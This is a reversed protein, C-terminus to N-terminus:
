ADISVNNPTVVYRDAAAKLEPFRRWYNIHTAGAKLGQYNTRLYEPFPRAWLIAQVGL